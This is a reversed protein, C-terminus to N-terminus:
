RSKTLSADVMTMLESMTFPKAVAGLAGLEVALQLNNARGSAGGSGSVAVIRVDPFEATLERITQHGDKTPMNIDTVVLDFPNERYLGIGADASLVSSVEHGHHEIIRSTCHNVAEDDDIVLIRAM